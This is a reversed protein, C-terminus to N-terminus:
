KLRKQFHMYDKTYKWDGGWVWGMQKFKLVLPHKSHLSRQDTTPNYTAGKPITDGKTSIYPNNFPNIDIATGISHLSLSKAAAKQRYHFSYTNNLRNMSTNGGPLDFKIPAVMEVPLKNEKIFEFIEILDNALQKHVIIKGTQLTNNANYFQVNILALNDIISQPATTGTVLEHLEINQAASNNEQSKATIVSLSLSFILAVLTITKHM